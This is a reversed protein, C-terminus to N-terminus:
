MPILYAGPHRFVLEDDKERGHEEAHRERHRQRQPACQEALHHDEARDEQGAKQPQVDVELRHLPVPAARAAKLDRHDVKAHQHQKERQQAFPPLEAPRRRPPVPVHDVGSQARQRDPIRRLRDKRPEFQPLHDPEIEKEQHHVIQQQIRGVEPKHEVAQNRDHHKHEQVPQLLFIQVVAILEATREGM